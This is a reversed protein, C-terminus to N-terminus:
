LNEAGEQDDGTAITKDVYLGDVRDDAAQPRGEWRRNGFVGDMADLTPKILNDVDRGTPNGARRSVVFRIQVFFRKALPPTLKQEFVAARVAERWPPVDAKPAASLRGVVRLHAFLEWDGGPHRLHDNDSDQGIYGFLAVLIAM